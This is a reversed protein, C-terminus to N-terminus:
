QSEVKLKLQKHKDATMALYAATDINGLSQLAQMLVNFGKVFSSGGFYGIGKSEAKLLPLEPIPNYIVYGKEKLHPAKSLILNAQARSVFILADALAGLRNYYKGLVENMLSSVVVLVSKRRKEVMEHIIFSRLSSPGVEQKTFDYM